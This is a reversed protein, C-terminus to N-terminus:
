DRALVRGRVTIDCQLLSVPHCLPLVDSTRKAAAVGTVIATSFVPAQLRPAARASLACPPLPTCVARCWCLTRVVPPLAVLPSSTAPGFLAEWAPRPLVVVCEAAAQRKTVAKAGVNVMAPLAVTGGEPTNVRIHSLTGMCRM